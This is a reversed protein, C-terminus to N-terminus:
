FRHHLHVQHRPAENEGHSRARVWESRASCATMGSQAHAHSKPFSSGTVSVMMLTQFPDDSDTTLARALQNQKLATIPGLARDSDLRVLALQPLSVRTVNRMAISPRAAPITGTILDRVIGRVSM